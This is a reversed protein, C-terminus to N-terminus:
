ILMAPRSFRTRPGDTEVLFDYRMPIRGHSSGSHCFESPESGVRATHM